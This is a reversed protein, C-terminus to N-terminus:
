PRETRIVALWWVEGNGYLLVKSLALSANEIPAKATGSTLVSHGTVV